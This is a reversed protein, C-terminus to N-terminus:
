HKLRFDGQQVGRWAQLVGGRAEAAVGVRFWGWVAWEACAFVGSPGGSAGQGGRSAQFRFLKRSVGFVAM